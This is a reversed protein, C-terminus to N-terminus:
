EAEGEGENAADDAELIAVFDAKTTAEGLELGRKEIEEKLADNKQKAYDVKGEGDDEDIVEAQVKILESPYMKLLRAAEEKDKIDVVSHPNIAGKALLFKRGSKNQILM